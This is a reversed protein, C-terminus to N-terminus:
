SVRIRPDLLAYSLDVVINTLIVVAAIWVNVAQVVTFDRNFIGDILFTGIGPLNFILEFIVSLGLVAPIQVGIITVFPILSNRVAHRRMVLAGTLGKARATRIYDQRLVELLAARLIRTQVGALILGFLLAPVWMQSLNKAPDDWIQQYGLPSSWGFWRAGFVVFLTALWFGPMALAFIAFSRASYDMWTNRKVAAIVGLPISIFTAMLLGLIALEITVPIRRGLDATIGRGTRLSEGFDLQFANGLWDGYFSFFNRDLNLEERLRAKEEEGFFREAALVDVVDGPLLRMLGAMILTVALLALVGLLVRRTLYQGM